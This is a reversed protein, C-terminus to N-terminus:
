KKSISKIQEASLHPLLQNITLLAKLLVGEVRYESRETIGVIKNTYYVSKLYGNRTIYIESVEKM